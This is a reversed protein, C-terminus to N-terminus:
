LTELTSRDAIVLVVSLSGVKNSRVTCERKVFWRM